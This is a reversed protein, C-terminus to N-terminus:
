KGEVCESILPGSPPPHIPLSHTHTHTHALRESMNSERKRLVVPLLSGQGHWLLLVSTAQSYILEQLATQFGHFTRSCGPHSESMNGMKGTQRNDSVIRVEQEPKPEQLLSVCHCLPLSLPTCSKQKDANLSICQHDASSQSPIYQDGIHCHTHPQEKKSRNSLILAAFNSILGKPSSCM